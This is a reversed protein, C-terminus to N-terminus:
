DERAFSWCEGLLSLLEPVNRFRLRTRSRFRGVCDMEVAAYPECFVSAWSDFHLLGVERLLRPQLFRMWVYAEALTNTLPTGSLATVRGRDTRLLAQCKLYLGVARSSERTPLGAVGEMRTTVPLAKFNQVEDVVLHDCGLDDWSPFEARRRDEVAALLRGLEASRGRLEARAVAQAARSMDHEAERIAHRLDSLEREAVAALTETRPPLTGLAEHTLVVYPWAGSAARRLFGALGGAAVGFRPCAWSLVEDASGPFLARWRAAWQGAVGAPVAVITRGALGWQRLKVSACIAPDTKGYGPPYALLSSRDYTGGSLIQAVGRLQGPRLAYRKGGVTSALGPFTLRQGEADRPAFRRFKEAYASELAERRVQATQGSKGVADSAIWSEFRRRVDQARIQAEATAGHNRRPRGGERTPADEVVPLRCNLAGELIEIGTVRDTRLTDQEALRPNTVSLLTSGSVRELGVGWSEGPYLSYLWDETVRQPIWDAGLGAGIEPLEVRHPFVERLANANTAYQPGAATATVLKARVDGSLYRAAPALSGASHGLLYSVCGLPVKYCLRDALLAQETEVRTLGVAAGIGDLDVRGTLDLYEVFAEALTCFVLGSGRTGIPAGTLLEAPRGRDNELSELFLAEPRDALQTSALVGVVQGRKSLHFAARLSGWRKTFARYADLAAEQEGECAGREQAILLAKAATYVTLAALEIESPKAPSHTGTRDASAASASMDAAEAPEAITTARIAECVGDLVFGGRDWRVILQARTKPVRLEAWAGLVRAPDETFASNVEYQTERRKGTGDSASEVLTITSLSIM